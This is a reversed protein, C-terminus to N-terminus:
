DPRLQGVEEQRVFVPMDGIAVGTARQGLRPIVPAVETLFLLELRIAVGSLSQSVVVARGDICRKLEETPHPLEPKVVQGRGAALSGRLNEGAEGLRVLVGGLITALGTSETM